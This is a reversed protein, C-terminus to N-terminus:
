QAWMAALLSITQKIESSRQCRDIIDIDRMSANYKDIIEIITKLFDQLQSIIQIQRNM